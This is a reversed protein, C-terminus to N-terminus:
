WESEQLALYEARTSHDVMLGYCYNGRSHPPALPMVASYTWGKRNRWCWAALQAVARKSAGIFGADRMDRAEWELASKLERRTDCKIIYAGDAMYCGRPGNSIMFYPM